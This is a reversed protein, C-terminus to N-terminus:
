LYNSYQLSDFSIGLWDQRVFRAANKQKIAKQLLRPLVVDEDKREHNCAIKMRRIIFKDKCYDYSAYLFSPCNLKATKQNPRIGKSTSVYRGYHKCTLKIYQYGFRLKNRKRKGNPTNSTDPLRKKKNKKSAEEVTKLKKSTIVTLKIFTERQFEDVAAVFADWTDFEAHLHLELDNLDINPDNVKDSM